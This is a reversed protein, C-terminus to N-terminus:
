LRKKKMNQLVTYPLYSEQRIICIYPYVKLEKYKQLIENGDPTAKAVGSAGNSNATSLVQPERPRCGNVRMNQHKALIGDTKKDTITHKSKSANSAGHGNINNDKGTIRASTNAKKKPHTMQATTTQPCSSVFVM